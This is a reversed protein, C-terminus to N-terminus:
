NSAKQAAISTEMFAADQDMMERRFEYFTLMASLRERDKWGTAKKLFAKYRDIIQDFRRKEANIAELYYPAEHAKLVAKTFTTLQSPDPTIDTM